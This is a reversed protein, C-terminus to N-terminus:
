INKIYKCKPYNSCGYFQNGAYPGQKATRLVLKGGCYPCIDTSELRKNIDQIHKQKLAEDYNM